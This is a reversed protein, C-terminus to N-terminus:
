AADAAAAARRYRDVGDGGRQRVMRGEAVLHNLHALGEGLAFITSFYDLERDFLHPLTEFVTKPEHCAALAAELRAHHHAILEDLRQHLGVFPLKHSPLVLVEDPLGYYRPLSELYEKLPNAEPEAPYVGIHPTIRPLIQDGSILVGAEAAYLCAHEPAHGRGVVVRWARGGVDIEEGDVIRRYSDPIPTVGKRYNGYGKAKLEELTAEALGTRRYFEIAAAPPVDHVDLSLVRGFLWDTRTMWLEIGFRETLWGALGLHDPHFHTVLVRRVPRGALGGEFISEWLEQVKSSKLGCDVITWGDRDELMWLNIHDLGSFPLPMRVWHIGPAVEM